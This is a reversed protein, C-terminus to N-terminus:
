QAITITVYDNVTTSGLVRLYVLPTGFGNNVSISATGGITTAVMGPKM